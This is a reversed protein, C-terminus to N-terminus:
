QTGETQDGNQQAEYKSPCKVLLNSAQFTGGRELAGEMVVDSGPKFADPVVGSYVIPLSTGDKDAITFRITNTEPTRQVSGEVVKGMVRVEEGYVTDARATLERVTLYYTAAGMFATYGLYGLAATVVIGVILFRHRRLWGGAKRAPLTRAMSARRDSNVPTDGQM